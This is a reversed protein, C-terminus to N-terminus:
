GSNPAPLHSYCGPSYLLQYGTNIASLLRARSTLSLLIIGHLILINDPPRPYLHHTAATALTTASSIRTSTAYQPTSSIPPLSAPHVLTTHDATNDDLRSGKTGTPKETIEPTKKKDTIELLVSIGNFRQQMWFIHYIHKKKM